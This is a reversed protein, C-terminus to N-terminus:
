HNFLFAPSNILAWAVDQAATLRRVAAQQVSMEIDHRLAVLGPDLQIPRQALALQDRLEKLRPDVALPARSANLAAQKTRLETDIARFYSLLMNKQADTRVDPATALIARFDEPLGLGIPKAIRTVSLRFRGLTWAKNFKHHLKFTLVTGGAGGIPESTEFTAWHTTGTAPHVAWGNNPDNSSGDIAKAVELDQQSFDALGNVLKVPKAQKADARPGATLELENLVFNGDNARGPGNSPLRRDSLVELRLGTIGALDTEAVVTVVGNGNPGSVVISGDAEATLTSKNTATSTKPSLVLWRNVIASAREKEWDAIKKPIVNSEYIKLDAQLKATTEAKAREAV